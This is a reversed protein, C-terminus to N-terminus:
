VIRRDGECIRLGPYDGCARALFHEVLLLIDERRERLPPLEVTLVALRHYLDERFRRASAAAALREIKERVAVIGRSEGLLEALPSMEGAIM